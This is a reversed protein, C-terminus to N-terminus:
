LFVAYLQCEQTESDTPEVRDRDTTALCCVIAGLVFSMMSRADRWMECSSYGTEIPCCEADRVVFGMGNLIALGAAAFVMVFLCRRTMGSGNRPASTSEHAEQVFHPETDTEDDICHAEDDLRLAHELETQTSM